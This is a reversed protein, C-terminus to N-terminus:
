FSDLPIHIKFGFRTGTERCKKLWSIARHLRIALTEPLEQKKINKSLQQSKM